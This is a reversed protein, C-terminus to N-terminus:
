DVDASDIGLELRFTHHFPEFEGRDERQLLKRQLELSTALTERGHATTHTHALSLDWQKRTVPNKLTVVAEIEILQTASTDGNSAAIGMTRSRALELKAWRQLVSFKGQDQHPRTGSGIEIAISSKSSEPLLYFLVFTL